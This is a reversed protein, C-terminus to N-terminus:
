EDRTEGDDVVGVHRARAWDALAALVAGPEGAVRVTKRRDTLGSAISLDSKALRWEKALYAILARNAKGGEAPATVAIKVAPQGEADAILGDVRNAAARPTLRVRVTVPRGDPGAAAFPPGAAM